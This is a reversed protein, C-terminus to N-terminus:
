LILFILLFFKIQTPLIAVPSAAFENYLTPASMTLTPIPGPEIQVVLIIAPIPTGCIVASEFTFFFNFFFFILIIESPPILNEPSIILAIAAPASAIIIPEIKAPM